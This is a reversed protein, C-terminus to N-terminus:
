RLPDVPRLPQHNRARAWNAMLEAEHQRAWKKVMQMIRLPLVGAICRLSAIEFSAKTGAYVAHFHPTGPHFDENFFMRITIGNFRSISPM